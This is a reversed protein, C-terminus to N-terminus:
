NVQGGLATQGHSNGPVYTSGSGGTFMVGGMQVLYRQGTVTNKNVFTIGEYMLVSNSGVYIYRGFSPNNLFTVTIYHLSFVAGENCFIHGLASGSVIINMNADARIFGGTHGWIQYGGVAGVEINKLNATSGYHTELGGNWSGSNPNTIKLGILYVHGRGGASDGVTIARATAVGRCFWRMPIPTM